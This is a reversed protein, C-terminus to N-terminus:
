SSASMEKIERLLNLVNIHAVSQHAKIEEDNWPGFMSGNCSVLLATADCFSKHHYM